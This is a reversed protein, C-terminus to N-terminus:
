VERVVSTQEQPPFFPHIGSLTELNTSYTNLINLGNRRWPFPDVHSPATWRRPQLRKIVDGAVRRESTQLLPRAQPKQQGVDTLAESLVYTQCGEGINFFHQKGKHTLVKQYTVPGPRGERSLTHLLLPNQSLAPAVLPTVLDMMYEYIFTHM